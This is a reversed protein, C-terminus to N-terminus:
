VKLNSSTPRSIQFPMQSKSLTLEMLLPFLTKLDPSYNESILQQHALLHNKKKKHPWFQEKYNGKVIRNCAEQKIYSAHCSWYFHFFIMIKSFKQTKVLLTLQKQEGFISKNPQRQCTILFVSKKLGTIMWLIVESEHTKRSLFSFIGIAQLPLLCFLKHHLLANSTYVTYKFLVLLKEMLKDAKPSGGQRWQFDEFRQSEKRKNIEEKNIKSSRLHSFTIQFLNRCNHLVLKWSSPSYAVDKFNFM